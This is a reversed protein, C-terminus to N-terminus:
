LAQKVRAVIENIAASDFAADGSVGTINISNLWNRLITADRKTLKGRFNSKSSLIMKM